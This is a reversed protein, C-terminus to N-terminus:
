HGIYLYSIANNRNSKLFKAFTNVKMHKLDLSETIYSYYKEESISSLETASITQVGIILDSYNPLEVGTCTSYYVLGESIDMRGPRAYIDMCHVKDRLNWQIAYAM